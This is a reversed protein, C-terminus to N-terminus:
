ALGGEKERRLDAYAVTAMTALFAALLITIVFWTARGADVPVPTAAEAASLGLVETAVLGCGAFLAGVCAILGLLSWRRGRSLRWFRAIAALPGCREVAIVSIGLWWVIALLLGALSLVSGLFAGFASNWPLLVRAAFGALVPLLCILTLLAASPLARLGRLADAVAARGGRLTALTPYAFLLQAVGALALRLLPNGLQRPWDLWGIEADDTGPMGAFLWVGRLVLAVACFPIFNRGLVRLTDAVIRPIWFRRVPTVTEGAGSM